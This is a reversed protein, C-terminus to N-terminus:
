EVVKRWGTPYATPSWVNNDITSEYVEDDITPFHVRDGKLYPNTSSPQEWVPYDDGPENIVKVWLSPAEEPNWTDQSTHSQLCKYLIEHFLVKDGVSYVTDTKWQGYTWIYKSADEDPTYNAISEIDHRYQEAEKVTVRDGSLISLAKSDNYEQKYLLIIATKAYQMQSLEDYGVYEKVITENDKVVINGKHKMADEVVTDLDYGTPMKIILENDDGHILLLEYKHENLIVYM